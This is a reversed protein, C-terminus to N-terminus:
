RKIYKYGSIYLVNDSIYWYDGSSTMADRNFVYFRNDGFDSSNKLTLTLYTDNEITYTGYKSEWRFEGNKDFQIVDGSTSVWSGEIPSHKSCSFAFILIFAVLCVFVCGGVVAIIFVNKNNKKAVAVTGNSMAPQSFQPPRPSDFSTNETKKDTDMGSDGFYIRTRQDDDEVPQKNESPQRDNAFPPQRNEDPEFDNAIPQHDIVNNNSEPVTPQNDASNLDYEFPQRDDRPKQNNDKASGQDIDIKNGCVNCFMAGDVLKAGCNNCFM